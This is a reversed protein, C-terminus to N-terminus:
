FWFKVAANSMLGDASDTSTMLYKVNFGLTMSSKGDVKIPADFGLVPAYGLEMVDDTLVPGAAVGIFSHRIVAMEGGFNYTGRALLGTRQVNDDDDEIQGTFLEAGLGFPIYPQFGVDVGLMPSAGGSGEPSNVGLNLGAHIKEEAHTEAPRPEPYTATSNEQAMAPVALLLSLTFVHKCRM